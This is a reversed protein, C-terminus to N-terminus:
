RASPCRIRGIPDRELGAQADTGARRSNATRNGPSDRDHIRGNDREDDDGQEHTGREAPQVRAAVAGAGLLGDLIKAELEIFDHLLTVGVASGDTIESRELSRLLLALPRELLLQRRELLGLFAERRLEVLDAAFEEALRALLEQLLGLSAERLRHLRDCSIM